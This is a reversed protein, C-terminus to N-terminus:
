LSCLGLDDTGSQISSRWLLSADQAPCAFASTRICRRVAVCPCLAVGPAIVIYPGYKIVLDIMQHLYNVTIKKQWLLLEGAAIIGEKWDIIDKDLVIRDASLLNLFATKENASFRHLDAM